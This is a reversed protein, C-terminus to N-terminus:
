VHPAMQPGKPTLRVGLIHNLAVVGMIIRFVNISLQCLSANLTQLFEILFPHLPFRVGEEVVGIVPIIFEDRNLPPLDDCPYLIIVNNPVHYLERFKKM